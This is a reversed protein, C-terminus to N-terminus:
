LQAKLLWSATDKYGGTRVGGTVRDGQLQTLVEVAIGLELLMQLALM